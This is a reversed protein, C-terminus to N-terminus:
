LSKTRLDRITRFSITDVSALREGLTDLGLADTVWFAFDNPPEPSLYHHQQLFRHTHHYISTGPVLRLGELLEPINKAQRGQLEVLNLRTMFRFTTSIPRCCSKSKTSSRRRGDIPM